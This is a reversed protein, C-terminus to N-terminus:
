TPNAASGNPYSTIHHTVPREQACVGPGQVCYTNLVHQRDEDMRSYLGGSPLFEM